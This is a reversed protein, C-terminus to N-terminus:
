FYKKQLIKNRYSMVWTIIKNKKIFNKFEKADRYKNNSPKILDILITIYTLPSLLRILTTTFINIPLKDWLNTEKTNRKVVEYNARTLTNDFDTIILPKKIKKNKIFKIVKKLSSIEYDYYKSDYKSYNERNIWFGTSKFGQEKLNKTIKLIGLKDDIGIVHYKKLNIKRNKILNFFLDKKVFSKGKMALDVSDFYEIM